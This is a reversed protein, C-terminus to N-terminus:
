IAIWVKESWGRDGICKIRGEKELPSFLKNLHVYFKWGREFVASSGKKLDKEFIRQIAENATKGIVLEKLLLKKRMETYSSKDM